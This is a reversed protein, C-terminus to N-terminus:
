TIICGACCGTRQEKEFEADFDVKGVVERERTTTVHKCENRGQVKDYRDDLIKQDYYAWHMCSIRKKREQYKKILRAIHVFAEEVNRGNKLSVQIFALNMEEALKNGEEWTVEMWTAKYEDEVRVAVLMGPIPNTVNDREHQKRRVVWGYNEKALELSKRNEASYIFLFGDGQEIYANMLDKEFYHDADGPGLTDFLEITIPEGDVICERIRPFKRNDNPHRDAPTPCFAKAIKFRAGVLPSVFVVRYKPLPVSRLEIGIDNRKPRLKLNQRPERSHSLMDM